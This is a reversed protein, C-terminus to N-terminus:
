PCSCRRARRRARGEALRHRGIRPRRRLPRAQPLGPPVAGPRRLPRAGHGQVRRLQVPVRPVPHRDRVPHGAVGHDAPQAAEGTRHRPLPVGDAVRGRGDRRVGGRPGPRVREPGRGVARPRPPAGGAAAARRPRGVRARHPRRRRVALHPRRRLVAALPRVGPPAPRLRLRARGRGGGRPRHRGRGPVVRDRPAAAHRHGERRHLAGRVGRRGARRRGAAGRRQRAGPLDARGASRRRPPGRPSPGAIPAPRQPGPRDHSTGGGRRHARHLTDPDVGGGVPAEQSRRVHGELVDCGQQEPAGKRREVRGSPSIAAFGGPSRHSRASGATEM